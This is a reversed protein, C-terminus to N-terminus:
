GQQRHSDLLEDLSKEQETVTANELLIDVVQQEMAMAQIGEMMHPNQRHYTKVAPAQDGYDAAVEDLMEDVKDQDYEIGQDTIVQNALLSLAVRKEAQAHLDADPFLQKAQEEDGQLQPLRQMAEKRMNNIEEAVLPEPVAIPNATYLADLVQTKVSLDIANKAEQELSERFKGRLAEVTGEEVGMQEVFAADLEPM